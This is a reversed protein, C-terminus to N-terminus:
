PPPGPANDGTGALGKALTRGLMDRSDRGQKQGPSFIAPHPIDVAIFVDIVDLAKQGVDKPIGM